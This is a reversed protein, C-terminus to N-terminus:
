KERLRANRILAEVAGSRTQGREARLADLRALAETSLSLTVLPRGRAARTGGSMTATGSRTEIRNGSADGITAGPGIRDALRRAETLTPAPVAVPGRATPVGDVEVIPASVRYIRRSM